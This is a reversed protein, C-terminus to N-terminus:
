KNSLLQHELYTTRAQAVILAFENWQPVFEQFLREVTAADMDTKVETGAAELKDALPTVVAASFAQDGRQEDAWLVKVPDSERKYKGWAKLVLQRKILPMIKEIDDFIIRGFRNLEHVQGSGWTFGGQPVWPIVGLAWSDGNAPLNDYLAAWEITMSTGLGGPIPAVQFTFYDNLARFNSGHSKWNYFNIKSTGMHLIWQYYFEGDGPQLYMEYSGGNALGALVEDVRPNENELYIHIGYQDAAVVFSVGADKNDGTATARDANVDNVLLAAAKQNYQEFRNERYKKDKGLPSNLWGYVGHPAKEVINVHYEPRAKQEVTGFFRAIDYDRSAVFFKGATFYAESIAEDDLDAPAKTAAPKNATGRVKVGDAILQLAYYYSPAFNKDEALEAMMQTAEDFQHAEALQYLKKFKAEAQFPRYPRAELTALTALAVAILLTIKKTM